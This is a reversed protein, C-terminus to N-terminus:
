KRLTLAAITQGVDTAIQFQSVLARRKEDHEPLPELKMVEDRVKAKFHEVAEAVMKQAQQELPSM